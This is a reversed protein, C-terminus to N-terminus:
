LRELARWLAFLKEQSMVGPSEEVGAGLDVFLADTANVAAVINDPHLAGSLIWTKGPHAQALRKFDSAAGGFLLTNVSELWPAHLLSEPAFHPALWLQSKGAAEAWQNLQEGTTAPGCHIQVADFGLRAIRALDAPAPEALVAVRKTLPLGGAMRQYKGESLHRPSDTRFHFGLYDAGIGAAAVADNVSCIGCIKLTIGNIM